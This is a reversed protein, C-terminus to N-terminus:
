LDVVKGSDLSYNDGKIGEGVRALRELAERFVALPTLLSVVVMRPDALGYFDGPHVVV